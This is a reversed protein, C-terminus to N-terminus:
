EIIIQENVLTNFITLSEENIDYSTDLLFAYLIRGKFRDKSNAARYYAVQGPESTPLDVPNELLLGPYAPAEREVGIIHLRGGGMEKYKTNDEIEWAIMKAYKGGPKVLRKSPFKAIFKQLYDELKDEKNAVHMFIALTFHIDKGQKDKIAPPNLIFASEQKKYDYVFFTWVSDFLLKIGLPRSIFTTLKGKKVTWISEKKYSNLKNVPEIKSRINEGLQMEFTGPTGSISKVKDMAYICHSPMNTVAATWAYDNWFEAPQHQPLVKEAAFFNNIAPLPVNSLAYHFGLFWYSRYDEPDTKRANNYYSVAKAFYITDDLNYLYHAIDGLLLYLEANTSSLSSFANYKDQLNKILERKPIPYTWKESWHDYFQKNDKIYNYALILEQNNSIKTIDIFNVNACTDLTLITCFYCILKIKLM